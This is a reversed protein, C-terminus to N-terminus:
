ARARHPYGDSDYEPSTRQARPLDAGSDACSRTAQLANARSRARRTSSATGLWRMRRFSGAGPRRGGFSSVVVRRSSGLDRAGLTPPRLREHGSCTPERALVRGGRGAWRSPRAVAFTGPRPAEPFMRGASRRPLPLHEGGADRSRGWTKSRGHLQPCLRARRERVRRARPALVRDTGPGSAVRSPRRSRSHGRSAPAKRPVLWVVDEEVLTEIADLDRPVFPM